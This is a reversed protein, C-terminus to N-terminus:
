QVWIITIGNNAANNDIRPAFSDLPVKNNNCHKNNNRTYDDEEVSPFALSANPHHSFFASVM